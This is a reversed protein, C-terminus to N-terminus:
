SFIQGCTTCSDTFIVSGIRQRRRTISLSDLARMLCVQGVVMVRMSVSKPSDQSVLALVARFAETFCVFTTRAAFRVSFIKTVGVLRCTCM